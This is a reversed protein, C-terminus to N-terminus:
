KKICRIYYYDKKKSKLEEKGYEGKSNFYYFGGTEGDMYWYKGTYVRDKPKAEVDYDSGLLANSGSKGFPRMVRLKHNDKVSSLLKEWEDSTPIGWGDPCAETAVKFNYMYGFRKCESPNENRCQTGDDM